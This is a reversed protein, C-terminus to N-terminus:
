LVNTYASRISRMVWRPGVRSPLQFMYILTISATPTPAVSATPTIDQIYLFIKINLMPGGAGNIPVSKINGTAGPPTVGPTLASLSPAAGTEVNLSSSVLQGGANPELCAIPSAGNISGSIVPYQNAKIQEMYGQIISTATGEYISGETLRRSQILGGLIGGLVMTLVTMAVVVEVLTMGQEPLKDKATM